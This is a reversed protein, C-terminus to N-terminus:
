HGNWSLVLLAVAQRSLIARLKLTGNVLSVSESGGAPVFQGAQELQAYQEATPTVPSGMRKWAEYANGHTADILYRTLKAQQLAPPLGQLTLAIAAAPGPVDDDHYHWFLDAFIHNQRM